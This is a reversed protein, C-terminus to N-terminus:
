SKALNKERASKSALLRHQGALEPNSTIPCQRGHILSAEAYGSVQALVDLATLLEQIASHSKSLVCKKRLNHFIDHKGGHRILYCGSKELQSILDRRKM